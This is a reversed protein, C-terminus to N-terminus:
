TSRAKRPASRCRCATAPRPSRSRSIAPARRSRHQGEGHRAHANSELTAREVAVGGADTLTGAIDFVTKGSLLPRLMEPVFSQFEGDGKAAIVSGKDTLQHRGELRTVM